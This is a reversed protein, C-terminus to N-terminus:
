PQDMFIEEDLDVHLFATKFDLKELELNMSVVLGLIVRISCMKVVHSFIEDFDIGQKQGFGKVVLHAKYKLLKEDDNKLNFVWKNKLEKRGKPLETLEYTDNKWLSNMEERMAKIWCDKDKYSQIEQFSEPEGEDDILIYKSSLYRTSPQRETTSRRLQPGKELQLIQEGQDVGGTDSDDGSEEAETIPEELEMGPESKSMEAENAVSELSTQEPTMDAVVEYTLKAGSMNKEMDEITEHEHFMVDKSRVIKQKESHWLRYGFEEDGYGIFICQTTKDDLKLRQEKPVHMFTICGFVKLHSYPVDKGIWVRQFIDFDLPISPSINILYVITNVAEGWFSKPLKALKLMCNVKEVITRNM